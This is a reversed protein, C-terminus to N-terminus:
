WTKGLPAQMTKIGERPVLWNFSSVQFGPIFRYQGDRGMGMKVEGWQQNINAEYEGGNLTFDDICIMTSFGVYMFGSINPWKLITVISYIVMVIVIDM